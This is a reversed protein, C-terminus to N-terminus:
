ASPEAGAGTVGVEWRGVPCIWRGPSSLIPYFEPALDGGGNSPCEILPFYNARANPDNSDLGLVLRM